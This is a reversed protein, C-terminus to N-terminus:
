SQLQVLFEITDVGDAYEWLKPHQAQGFQIEAPLGANSVVCQINEEQSELEKGLNELSNYREYFVVAIPSSFGRDEKLLLFENDFLPLSDMLYVAKNYDYNNMYKNNNNIAERWSYVGNFFKDFNYDEPVYLKSVNRCGLGFYQFIDDALATLDEESENGTLVSVSNRNKRIINPYKGFYYDFYRATNNSGTAIVADFSNLRSETFEILKSFESNQEILHKAFFPLLVKDSSSLKVLVKNGTILVSLFDHFGVLPINGAMIVAVTKPTTNAIEYKSVWELINNESLAEGWSKLAFRISEQTFWGNEAKARQLISRVKDRDFGSVHESEINQDSLSSSSDNEIEFENEIELLYKGLSVFADIRLRLDM